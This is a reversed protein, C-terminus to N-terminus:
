FEEKMEQGALASPAAENSESLMSSNEKCDMDTHGLTEGYKVSSAKPCFRKVHGFARCLFCM